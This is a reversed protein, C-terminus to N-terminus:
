APETPEPSERRNSVNDGDNNRLNWFVLSSLVTLVGMTVYAKHLAPVTQAPDTQNVNGLFWGAILSAFAVGFSLSM